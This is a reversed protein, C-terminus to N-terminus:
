EAVLASTKMRFLFALEKNTLSQVMNEEWMVDDAGYINSVLKYLSISKSLNKM